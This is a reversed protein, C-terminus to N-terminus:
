LSFSFPRTLRLYSSVEWRGGRLGPPSQVRGAKWKEPANLDPRPNQHASESVEAYCEARPLEKLRGRNGSECRRCEGTLRARQGQLPSESWSRTRLLDRDPGVGPPSHLGVSSSLCRWSWSISCRSVFANWPLQGTLSRTGPYDLAACSGLQPLPHSKSQTLM